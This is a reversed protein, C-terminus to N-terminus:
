EPNNFTYNFSVGNGGNYESNLLSTTSIITNNVIQFKWVGVLGYNGNLNAGANIMDLSNNGSLFLDRDIDGIFMYQSTVCMCFTGSYLDCIDASTILPHTRLFCGNLVGEASLNLNHVVTNNLTIDFNDDRASNSNCIMIAYHYGDDCCNCNIVSDATLEFIPPKDCDCLSLLNGTWRPNVACPFSFNVLEWKQKCLLDLNTAEPDFKIDSNCKIIMNIRDGCDIDVDCEWLNDAIKYFQASKTLGDCINNFQLTGDGDWDCCDICEFNLNDLSNPLICSNFLLVTQGNIDVTLVVFTVGNHCSSDACKLSVSAGNSLLSADDIFFSFTQSRNGGGPSNNLSIQSATFTKRPTIIQPIFNTRNCVHGGYCPINLPGIGPIDVTGASYRYFAYGNITFSTTEECPIPPPTTTTTPFDTTTTSTSTTTSCRLDCFCDSYSLIPPTIGNPYLYPTQTPSIIVKTSEECCDIYGDYTFLQLTPNCTMSIYYNAGCPFSGSTYWTNGTRQVLNYDEQGGLLGYGKITMYFIDPLNFNTCFPPLTTTTTCYINSIINTLTVSSPLRDCCIAKSNKCLSSIECQLTLNSLNFTDILPVSLRDLNTLSDFSGVIVQGIIKKTERIKIIVQVVNILNISSGLYIDINAATLNSSESPVLKQTTAVFLQEKELFSNSNNVLSYSTNNISIYSGSPNYNKGAPIFLSGCICPDYPCQVGSIPLSFYELTPPLTTTSSTSTTFDIFPDCPKVYDTQVQPM